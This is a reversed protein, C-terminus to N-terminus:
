GKFYGRNPKNPSFQSKNMNKSVKINKAMGVNSNKNIPKPEEKVKDPTKQIQRKEVVDNVRTYDITKPEETKPPDFKSRNILTALALHNKPKIPESSLNTSFTRTQVLASPETVKKPLPGFNKKSHYLKKYDSRLKSNYGTEPKSTLGENHIRRFFDVNNSVKIKYGNKLMRLAFESDAECKWPEFGNMRDFIHKKITFIGGEFETKNTKNESFLNKFNVYSHRVFDCHNISDIANQIMNENMIDDSDFFLLNEGNAIESLSNKIVYPGVNKEFYYFKINDPYINSKIYELTEKCGDIGVLIEVNQNKTSEIVSDICEDIYNISKYTPIIVTIPNTKYIENVVKTQLHDEKVYQNYISTQQPIERIYGKKHEVCIIEIGINKAFKGIWIDAMNPYLFDSIPKKLLSTHFCMVGTGGFQVKVDQKVEDFCRYKENASRYYSSIPFSHFSRGHLTIIKKDDYQKSKSIMYDIFDPPYILDDDITIFYGDSKDLHLFKFADGLSNDTFVLNIKDSFLIEPLEGSHNNLCVNIEDCQDYISKLSYVLSDIRNYSAVNVIRKQYM